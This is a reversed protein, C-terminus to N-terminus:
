KIIELNKLRFKQWPKIDYILKLEDKTIKGIVSTKGYNKMPKLAIQVEGAYRGYLNSDILIDGPEIERPNFLKFDYESYYVRPMTSRIMYESIDGRNFHLTDFLVKKEVEPLNVELNIYLELINRNLNSLDILEEDTPFCSSIIIDDIVGTNWLDKAQSIMSIGRHEELTPLGEEVPWPGINANQSFVFAATRINNDKFIRSNKVLHDKSIGTYRHPYFNHCGLLNNRNPQYSLINELYKNTSSMNFEIKLGDKNFSMISEENGSFGEDLRIGSLGIKKFYGIDKYDINLSSFVAPSVDAIVEMGNKNSFEIMDIFNKLKEENDVALFNTFIRSFGLKSCKEIYNFYDKKKTVDPYISIGLQRM